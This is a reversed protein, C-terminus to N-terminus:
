NTPWQKARFVTENTIYGVYAYYTFKQKPKM